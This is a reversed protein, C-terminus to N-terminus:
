KRSLHANIYSSVKEHSGNALMMDSYADWALYLSTGFGYNFHVARSAGVISDSWQSLTLLSETSLSRIFLNAMSQVGLLYAQSANEQLLQRYHEAEPMFSPNFVQTTNYPRVINISPYATENVVHGFLMGSLAARSIALDTKPPMGESTRDEYNFAHRSLPRLVGNEMSEWTTRETRIMGLFSRASGEEEIDENVGAILDDIDEPHPLNFDQPLDIYKIGRHTRNM